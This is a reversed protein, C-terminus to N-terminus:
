CGLGSALGVGEVMLVSWLEIGEEGDVHDKSSDLHDIDSRHIRTVSDHNHM